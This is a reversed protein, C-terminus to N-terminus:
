ERDIDNRYYDVITIISEVMCTTMCLDVISLCSKTHHICPFPLPVIRSHPAHTSLATLLIYMAKAM